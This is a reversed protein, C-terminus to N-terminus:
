SHDNQKAESQKIPLESSQRICGEISSYGRKSNIDRSIQLTIWSHDAKLPSILVTDTGIYTKVTSRSM